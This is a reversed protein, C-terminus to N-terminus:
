RSGACCERRCRFEVDAHRPAAAVRNSPGSTPRPSEGRPRIPQAAEGRHLGGSSPQGADQPGSGRRARRPSGKSAKEDEFATGGNSQDAAVRASKGGEHLVGCNRGLRGRPSKARVNFPGLARTEVSEGARRDPFDRLRPRRPDSRNVQLRM